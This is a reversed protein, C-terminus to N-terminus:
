QARAELANAIRRELEGRSFCTFTGSLEMSSALADVRTHVETSDGGAPVLWTRVALRIRHTDALQGTMNSGCDVLLSLRTNGLRRTVNHNAVEATWTSEDVGPAPLGLERYVASLLPWLRDRPEPVVFSGVYDPRQINLDAVVGGPDTTVIIRDQASQRANPDRSACATVGLALVLALVLRM